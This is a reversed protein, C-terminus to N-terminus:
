AMDATAFRRSYLLLALAAGAFALNGAVLTDPTGNYAMAVPVSLVAAGITSLSMVVSSGIGAIHGLPQLALANLNGFTLGITFFTSCMFAFFLGFNWPAPLDIQLLGLFLASVLVQWTFAFTALTRMGLRMVLQANAMSATGAILATAAFWLHFTAARDYIEDFIIPLNSLWTFLPAFSFVLAAVYVMVARNTGIEALASGIASPSLPRRRALPLSEPQRLFLWLGSVLGFAVFAYFIARWDALAIIGAGITPAIAPVLVFLTMIISTVRAMTRGEYLDRVMATAVVRPAAAGLGQLLRAGLLAEITMAHSALLSGGVYLVLGGLLVSKRGYADSVPGCVMIGLGLGLVFVPIVLQGRTPAAPSLEAGIVPLAPLMADIAFAIMASMLAMLAVFEGFRLPKTPPFPIM